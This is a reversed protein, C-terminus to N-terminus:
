VPLLTRSRQPWKRANEPSAARRRAHHEEIRHLPAGPLACVGRPDHPPPLALVHKGTGTGARTDAVSGVLPADRGFISSLKNSAAKTLIRGTARLCEGDSFAGLIAMSEGLKFGADDIAPIQAAPNMRRFEATRTKTGPAAPCFQFPVKNILCPWVVARVPQSVPVGFIKLM